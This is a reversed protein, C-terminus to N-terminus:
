YHYETVQTSSGRVHRMVHAHADERHRHAMHMNLCVESAGNNWYALFELQGNDDHSEVIRYQDPLKAEESSPAPPLETVLRLKALLPVACYITYDAEWTGDECILKYQDSIHGREPAPLTAWPEAKQDYNEPRTGAPVRVLYLNFAMEQARRKGPDIEATKRTAGAKAIQKIAQAKPAAAQDLEASRIASMDEEFTAIRSALLQVDCPGESESRGNTKV